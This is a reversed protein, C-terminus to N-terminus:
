PAQLVAFTWGAQTVAERSRNRSATSVRKAIRVRKGKRGARRHTPQFGEQRSRNREPISQRRRDSRDGRRGREEPVQISVKGRVFKKEAKGLKKKRRKLGRKEKSMKHLFDEQM